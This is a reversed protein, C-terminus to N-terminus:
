NRLQPSNQKMVVHTNRNATKYLVCAAFIDRKIHPNDLYITLVRKPSMGSGRPGSHILDSRMLLADGEYMYLRTEFDEGIKPLGDETSSRLQRHSGAWVDIMTYDDVAILLTLPIEDESLKFFAQTLEIDCHPEMMQCTAPTYRFAMGGFRHNPFDQMIQKSIGLTDRLFVEQRGSRVLAYIDKMLPTPIPCLWRPFFQYGDVHLM